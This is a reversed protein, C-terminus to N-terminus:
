SACAGNGDDFGEQLVPLIKIPAVVCGETYRTYAINAFLQHEPPERARRLGSRRHRRWHSRQCSFLARRWVNQYRRAILTLDACKEM